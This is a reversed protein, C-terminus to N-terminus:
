LLRMLTAAAIAEVSNGVSLKELINQRHRSVTHISIGLIAAIQKSLKGEKIMNLIEKERDTLIHTRRGNFEIQSVEGSVINIICPTIGITSDQCPSLNYSCLILWIKGNPSLRAIRTSNDVYIYNGARNKIRFRCTAKFTLKSDEPLSDVLKFFEYELMRKDVLDEPHILKYIIDEDSSNMESTYSGTNSIGILYAFIGGYIYCYDAAADTIVLCNSDVESATEVDNRFKTLIRYDLTEAILNQSEYIGNLEKKLVDM